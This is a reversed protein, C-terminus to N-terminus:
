RPVAFIVREAYGLRVPRYSSASRGASSMRASTSTPVGCRISSAARRILAPDPQGLFTLPPDVVFSAAEPEGAARAVRLCQGPIGGFRTRHVGAKPSREGANRGRRRRANREWNRLLEGRVMM